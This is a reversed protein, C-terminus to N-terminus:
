LVLRSCCRRTALGVSEYEYDGVLDPSKRRRSTTELILPETTHGGM